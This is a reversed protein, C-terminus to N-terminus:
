PAYDKTMWVLFLAGISTLPVLMGGYVGEGYCHLLEARGKTVLLNVGFSFWM